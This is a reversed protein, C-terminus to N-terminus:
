KVNIKRVEIDLKVEDLKSFRDGLKQSVTDYDLDDAPNPTGADDRFSPDLLATIAPVDKAEVASRYHQMVDVIARTDQTDDINTGPIQRHACGAGMGILAGIWPALRDLRKM